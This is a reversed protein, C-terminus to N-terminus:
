VKKEGESIRKRNGIKIIKNREMEHQVKSSVNEWHPDPAPLPLCPPTEAGPNREPIGELSAGRVRRGRTGSGPLPPPRFWHNSLLFWHARSIGVSFDHTLLETQLRQGASATGQIPLCSPQHVPSPPRPVRPHDVQGRRRQHLLDATPELLPIFAHRHGVDLAPEEEDPLLEYTTNGVRVGRAPPDNTKRERTDPGKPLPVHQAHSLM